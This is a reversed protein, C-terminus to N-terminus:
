VNYKSIKKQLLSLREQYVNLINEKFIVAEKIDEILDTSNNPDQSIRFIAEEGAEIAEKCEYIENLTASIDKQLKNFRKENPSLLLERKNFLIYVPLSIVYVAFSFTMDIFLFIKKM